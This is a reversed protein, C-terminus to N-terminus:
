RLLTVHGVRTRLGKNDACESRSKVVYVYTGDPVHGGNQMSRGAWGLDPDNTRFLEIGWRDYIALEFDASEAGVVRFEENVDDDNPTFVNPVYQVGDGDETMTVVLTDSRVCGAEDIAAYWYIGEGLQVTPGIEGQSWNVGSLGSPLTVVALEGVCINRDALPPPSAIVTVIVSDTAVSCENTVTAVFVGSGTATYEPGTTGDQWVVAGGSSQAELNLPTANCLVTDSGLQVWAGAIMDVSITDSDVCGEQDVVVWYTGASDILRSELDSGDDWTVSTFPGQVSLELIQGTCLVTDEGLDVLIEPMIQVWISDSASGCAGSVVIWYLGTADAITNLTTSGTSWIIEGPQVIDAILEIAVDDCSSTDPGLVVDPVAETDVVITDVVTCGGAAVVVWYSGPGSIILAPDSTGDSWTITWIGLAVELELTSPSCLLTDQGLDVLPMDTVSIVVSDIGTCGPNGVEVWYTGAASANFEPLASGDQWEYQSGPVGPSLVVDEGPCLTLDPGLDPLPPTDFAVIISDSVTCGNSSGGVWYLGADLVEFESNTSGDQWIVGSLGPPISLMLAGGQCLVTDSGLDILLPTTYTVEITDSSSCGEPGVIVWYTGAASVLLDESTSGDQWVHTAGTLGTSLLLEEGPCLLTDSGLEVNGVPEGVAVTISDTATCCGVYATVWYTGPSTVVLSDAVSGDQWVFTAGPLDTHLVVQSCTSTDPGLDLQASCSSFIETPAFVAQTSASIPAQPITNVSPFFHDTPLDTTNVTLTTVDGCAVNGQDDTRIILMDEDGGSQVVGTLLFGVDLAVLNLTYFHPFTQVQGAPGYTRAWLVDGTFSVALLFMRQSGPSTCRGALLYGFSTAVVRSSVEQANGAINYDRAWAVNGLTDTRILGVTFNASAGTVDGFYSITLSDNSPVIDTGYMRRSISNPYLLYRTWLHGGGNDFKSLFVRCTSLPSGNTFIRGAAYHSNNMSVASVIDDIYPVDSYLDLRDTMSLINGTAADVRAQFLDAWTGGSAYYDSFLLYETASLPLIRRNYALADQWHRIWIVNGDTDMRFHFGEFPEQGSSVGNGCGIITGDPASILQYVHKAYQGPPKFTRAWIINGDQNLRAVMASDGTSGGIFLTNDPARYAVLAREDRTPVGFTRIFTQATAGALLFFSACLVLASRFFMAPSM